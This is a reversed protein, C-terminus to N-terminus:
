EAAARQLRRRIEEFTGIFVAGGISIWMMRPVVGAFLARGGEAAHIKRMTAIVSTSYERQGTGAQTMLRTKVVDLPTTVGAALGGSVFGAVGNQWLVLPKGGQAEQWRRKLEEYVLFQVADFPADRKVTSAYGAWLGRLGDVKIIDRFAGGLSRHMGVQMQQKVVEFPNRVAMVCM